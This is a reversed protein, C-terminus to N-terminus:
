YLDKYIRYYGATAIEDFGLEGADIEPVQWTYLAFYRCGYERAIRVVVNLDPSDSNLQDYMEMSEPCSSEEPRRGFLLPITADYQRITTALLHPAALKLDGDEGSDKHILQSVELTATPLKFYNESTKFNGNNFNFIFDGSMIILLTVIILVSYRLGNNKQRVIIHTFVYALLIPIPLLWFMRWYVAEEFFFKTVIKFFIPNFTLLTVLVSPYVFYKRSDKEILLIYIVALFYLLFYIGNGNFKIFTDWIM